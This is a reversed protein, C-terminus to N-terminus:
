KALRMTRLNAYRQARDRVIPSVRAPSFGRKAYYTIGGNWLVYSDFDTPARGTRRQFASELTALYQEAVRASLRPNQYARSDSYLEWIAPKIQYRSVEGAGGILRDNDGTEIMSIAELKNLGGYAAVLSLCLVLIVNKMRKM